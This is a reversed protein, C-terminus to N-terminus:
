PKRLEVHMNREGEGDKEEEGDGAEGESNEKWDRGKLVRGRVCSSFSNEGMSGRAM